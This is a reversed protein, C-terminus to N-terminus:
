FGPALIIFSSPIHLFFLIKGVEPKQIREGGGM